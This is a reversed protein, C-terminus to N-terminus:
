VKKKKKARNEKLSRKWGVVVVALCGILFATCVYEGSCKDQLKCICHIM